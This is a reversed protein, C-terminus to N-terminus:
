LSFKDANRIVYSHACRSLNYEIEFDIIQHATKSNNKLKDIIAIPAMNVTTIMTTDLSFPSLEPVFNYIKKEKYSVTGNDNFVINEKIIKEKFVFPGIEELDPLASQKEFANGNKLNFM